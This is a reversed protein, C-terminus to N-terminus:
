ASYKEALFSEEDMLEGNKIGLGGLGVKTNNSYFEDRQIIGDRDTDLVAYRASVKNTHIEGWSRPLPLDAGEKNREIIHEKM